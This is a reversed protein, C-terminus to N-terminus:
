TDTFKYGVGPVTIIYGPTGPDNEIKTRLHRIYVHLYNKENMYETGWVKNLLHNYTLVKDKNLVLEKLLNYETPTLKIEEGAVTVQRKNFDIILDGCIFNSQTQVINDTETRRFVAEVRALLEDPNFPKIMYDDAGLKLLKVKDEPKELASLVIIVMNSM